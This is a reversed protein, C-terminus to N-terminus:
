WRSRSTGIPFDLRKLRQEPQLSIFVEEVREKKMKGLSAMDHTARLGIRRGRRRCLTNLGLSIM